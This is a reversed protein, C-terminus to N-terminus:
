VAAKPPRRGRIRVSEHRKCDAATEQERDPQQEAEALHPCAAAGRRLGRQEEFTTPEGELASSREGSMPV